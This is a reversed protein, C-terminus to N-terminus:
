LYNDIWEGVLQMLKAESKKVMDVVDQESTEVIREIPFCENSIM